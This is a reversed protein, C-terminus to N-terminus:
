DTEVFSDCFDVISERGSIKSIIEIFNKPLSTRDLTKYIRENIEKSSAPDVLLEEFMKEGDRLGTYIIEIGDEGVAFGRMKILKEALERVKIPAGMNLLYIGEDSLELATEIVLKSAEEITMFYRTVDRHRVTVPGGEDIQREFIPIVSGSSGLVNGFRVAKFLCNKSDEEAFAQVLHECVRKTAGMFNTPRVAKDSSVLVFQEVRSDKLTKLVNLTGIVNNQWAKEINFQLLEVHKYAAAHFVIDPAHQSFLLELDRLNNVDGLVPIVKSQGTRLIEFIKFLNFESHDFIIIKKAGLESLQTALSSGISGGGGTILITKDKIKEYCLASFRNDDGTGVLDSANVTRIDSLLVNNRSLDRKSPLIVVRTNLASLRDLLKARGSPTLSPIAVLIQEIDNIRSMKELKSFDLDPIDIGVDGTRADDIVGTFKVFSAKDLLKIIQNAAEGSGYIVTRM